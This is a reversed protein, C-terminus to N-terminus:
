AGAPQASSTEGVETSSIHPSVRSFMKEMGLGLVCIMMQKFMQLFATHHKGMTTEIAERFANLAEQKEQWSTTDPEGPLLVRPM